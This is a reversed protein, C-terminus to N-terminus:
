SSIQLQMMRELFAPVFDRLLLISFGDPFNVERERNATGQVIRLAADEPRESLIKACIDPEFTQSLSDFANTTNIGGPFLSM